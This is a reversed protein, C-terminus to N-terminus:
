QCGIEKNWSVGAGVISCNCYSGTKLQSWMGRTQQCLQQATNLKQKNNDTLAHCKEFVLNGNETYIPQCKPNELCRQEALLQCTDLSYAYTQLKQEWILKYAAAFVGGVIILVALISFLYFSRKTM